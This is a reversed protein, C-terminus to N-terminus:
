LIITPVSPSCIDEAQWKSGSDNRETDGKMSQTGAVSM